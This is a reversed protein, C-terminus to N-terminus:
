LANPKVIVKLSHDLRGNFVEFAKKYEKMPFEHTIL